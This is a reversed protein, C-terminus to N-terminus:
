KEGKRSLVRGIDLKFSPSGTTGSIRIPVVAGAGGHRFLPDLPKLLVRKVGTAMQSVTADLRATGTFDIDGSRLAYTGDLRVDAGPVDFRLMPLALRANKLDFRGAFQARVDNTETDKPDGEAHHSLSAVKQQVDSGTFKVNKLSFTGALQLREIVDTEGPPIKVATQFSVRGTMPPKPGKMALRLFDQIETGKTNATLAIEKHKELANREISGSVEFASDDLVARVLHLATDGNTGDVTADFETRLHMPHNGSTLAFGPVDTTGHVDIRDLAGTYNGSSALMGRIGHFVSLDANSFTYKGKVPTDGPEDQNWPGFEGDSHIRGPPKPNELEAHFSMALGRGRGHLTLQRIDFVLPDKKPDSPLTELRAGDAVVEDLVFPADVISGSKPQQDSAPDTQKPPVHIELGELRVRHIRKPNRFFGVFRADVTFRRISILPPLDARGPLRLFLNTGIAHVSPFLSIELSGLQVDSKYRQKLSSIVWDRALPQFRIVLIAVGAAIAAVAAAAIWLFIRVRRSLTV